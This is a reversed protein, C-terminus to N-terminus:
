YLCAEVTIVYHIDPALARAVNNATESHSSKQLYLKILIMVHQVFVSPFNDFFHIQWSISVISNHPTCLRDRRQKTKDRCMKINKGISTKVFIMCYFLGSIIKRCGLKPHKATTTYSQISYHSRYSIQHSALYLMICLETFQRTDTFKFWDLRFRSLSHM